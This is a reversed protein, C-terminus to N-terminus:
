SDMSLSVSDITSIVVFIEWSFYFKLSAVVFCINDGIWLFIGPLLSNKILSWVSSPSINCNSFERIWIWVAFTKSVCNNSFVHCESLDWSCRKSISTIENFWLGDLIRQSNMCLTISNVLFNMNLIEWWCEFNLSTIIFVISDCIRILSCPFLCDQIIEWCTFWCVDCDSRECVRISVALQFLIRKKSSICLLYDKYPSRLYSVLGVIVLWSHQSKSQSNMCLTILNIAFSMILVIWSCNCNMTTIIFLVDDCVWTLLCKSLWNEIIFWCPSCGLSLNLCKCIGILVTVPEFVRDFSSIGSIYSNRSFSQCICCIDSLWVSKSEIKFDMTNSSSSSLDERWSDLKLTTIVLVVFDCIRVLSSPLLSHSVFIWCSSIRVNSNSTECVWIMIALKQFVSSNTFICFQNCDRSTGESILGVQYLWFGDFIRQSNMCLTISDISVSM